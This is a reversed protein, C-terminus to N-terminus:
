TMHSSLWAFIRLEGGPDVQEVTRMLDSLSALGACDGVRFGYLNQHTALLTRVTRNFDDAGFQSVNAIPLLGGTMKIIDSYSGRVVAPLDAAPGAASAQQALLLLLLSLAAM